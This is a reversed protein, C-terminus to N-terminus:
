LGQTHTNVVWRNSFLYFVESVRMEGENKNEQM